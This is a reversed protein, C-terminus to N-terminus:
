SKPWYGGLNQWMVNDENKSVAKLLNAKAVVAM